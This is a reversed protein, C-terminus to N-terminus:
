QILSPNYCILKDSTGFWVTGDQDSYITKTRIDSFTLFPSNIFCYNGDDQLAAFYVKYESADILWLNGSGDEFIKFILKNQFLKQFTDDQYFSQSQSDLLYFQENAVFYIKNAISVISIMAEPLGNKPTFLKVENNNSASEILYVEGYYASAWINGSDDEQMYRINGTVNQNLKDLSSENNRSITFVGDSTGLYIIDSNKKSQRIVNIAIGDIFISHVRGKRIIYLNFSVGVYLTDDICAMCLPKQRIETIKKFLSDNKQVDETEQYIGNNTRLYLKDQHRLIGQFIGEFGAFETYIFFPSVVDIKSIGNDSGMWLKKDRDLFLHRITNDLLSNKKNVLYRIKGQKDLVIIGGYKTGLAFLHNPLVIGSYIFNETIFRDAESRFPKFEHDDYLFLGNVRTVILLEHDSYPLMAFINIKDTVLKEGEPVLTVTEKELRVLGVDKQQIYIKNNVLEMRGFLTTSQIISLTNESFRYLAKYTRFYVGDPNVLIQWVDDFRRQDEPLLSKLSVYSTKDHDLYGIENEGGVYIRGDLGMALSRVTDTQPIPINQWQDGDYELIGNEDNAFYMIGRKDQIVNWITEDGKYDNPKYNILFPHRFYIHKKKNHERRFDKANILFYDKFVRCFASVSTYGSNFAVKTITLSPKEILSKAAKELRIRKIYDGINEGVLDKFVRHFHSGSLNAINALHKIVLKETINDEIYELIKKIKLQNDNEPNNIQALM